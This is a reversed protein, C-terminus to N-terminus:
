RDQAAPQRRRELVLRLALYALTGCLSGLLLNGVAFPLLYPRLGVWLSSYFARGHLDWDIASLGASPMGLLACGVLTGGTLMPTITWPNNLWCGALLAVKSLRFGFAVLLAIGTHIGLVPFFAIFVGIAFALATRHPTGEQRLLAHGWQRLRSM